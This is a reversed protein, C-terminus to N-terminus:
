GSSCVTVSTSLKSTNIIRHAHKVGRKAMIKVDGPDDSFKMEDYDIINFSPVDEVSTQLYTCLLLFESLRNEEEDSLKPRSGYKGTQRGYFKRNVTSYPIGYSKAVARM